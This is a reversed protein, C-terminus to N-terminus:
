QVEEKDSKIRRLFKSCKTQCSESCTGEWLIFELTGLEAWLIM